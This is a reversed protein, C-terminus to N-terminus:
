PLWSFALFRTERQKQPNQQFEAHFLFAGPGPLNAMFAAARPLHEVGVNGDHGCWLGLDDMVSNVM